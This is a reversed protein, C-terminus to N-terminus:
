RAVGVRPERFNVWSALTNHAISVSASFPCNATPPAVIFSAFYLGIQTGALVLCEDMDIQISRQSNYVGGTSQWSLHQFLFQSNNPNTMLGQSQPASGLTIGIAGLNAASNVLSIESSINIWRLVSDVAFRFSSQLTYSGDVPLALADNTRSINSLNPAIFVPRVPANM